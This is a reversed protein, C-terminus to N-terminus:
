QEWQSPVCKRLVLPHHALRTNAPCPAHQSSHSISVVRACSATQPPDLPTGPCHCHLTSWALICLGPVRAQPCACVSFSLPSLTLYLHEWVSFARSCVPSWSLRPFLGSLDTAGSAALGGTAEMRSPRPEQVQCDCDALGM